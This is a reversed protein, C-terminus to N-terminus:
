DPSLAAPRSRRSPDRGQDVHRRAPQLAARGRTHRLRRRAVPRLQTEAERLFGFGKGSVEVIGESFTPEAKPANPDTEIPEWDAESETARPAQGAHDAQDSNRPRDRDRDNRNRRSRDRRNRRERRSHRSEQQQYPRSGGDASPANSPSADSGAGEPHQEPPAAPKEAAERAALIQRLQDTSLEQADVQVPAAPSTPAASDAMSPAAVETKTAAPKRPARPKKVPAETDPISASTDSDSTHDSM